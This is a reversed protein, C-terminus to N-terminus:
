KGDNGGLTSVATSIANAVTQRAAIVLEKTTKLDTALKERSARADQGVGAETTVVINYDQEAQTTVASKAASVADKAKQIAEKATTTDKDAMGNVKSALRNLIETMKTLHKSMTETRKTNIQVLSNNVRTAVAAKQKDRFQALKQKLAAERSAVKEKRAALNAERSAIKDGALTLYDASTIQPTILLALAIIHATIIKKM